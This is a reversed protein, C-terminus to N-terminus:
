RRGSQQSQLIAEYDVADMRVGDGVQIISDILGFGIAAEPTLYRDRGLEERLLAM